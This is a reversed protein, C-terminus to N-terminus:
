DNLMKKVYNEPVEQISKKVMVAWIYMLEFFDGM